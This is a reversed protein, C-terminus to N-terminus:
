QGMQDGTNVWASEVVHDYVLGCNQCMDCEDGLFMNVYNEYAYGTCDYLQKCDPCQTQYHAYLVNEDEDFQPKQQSPIYTGLGLEDFLEDADM